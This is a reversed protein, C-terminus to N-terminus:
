VVGALHRNETSEVLLHHSSNRDGPLPITCHQGLFMDVLAATGTSIDTIAAQHVFRDVLLNLKNALMM